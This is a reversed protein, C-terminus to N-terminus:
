FFNGGLHFTKAQLFSSSLLLVRDWFLWSSILFIALLRRITSERRDGVAPCLTKLHGCSGEYYLYEWGGKCPSPSICIVKPRHSRLLLTVDKLSTVPGSLDFHVPIIKKPGTRSATQILWNPCHSLRKLLRYLASNLSSLLRPEQPIWMVLVEM